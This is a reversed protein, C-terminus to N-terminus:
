NKIQGGLDLYITLFKTRKKGLHKEALKDYNNIRDFM